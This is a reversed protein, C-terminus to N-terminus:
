YSKEINKGSKGKIFTKKQKIFACFNRELRWWGKLPAGIHALTCMNIPVWGAGPCGLLLTALFPNM